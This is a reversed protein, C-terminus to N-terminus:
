YRLFYYGVTLLIVSAYGLPFLWRCTRDIRNGLMQDGRRDIAGVTLNVVV